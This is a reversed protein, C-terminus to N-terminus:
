QGDQAAPFKLNPSNLSGVVLDEYQNAVRAQLARPQDVLAPLEAISVIVKGYSTPPQDAFVVSRDGVNWVRIDSNTLVQIRCDGPHDTSSDIAVRVDSMDIELLSSVQRQSAEALAREAPINEGREAAILMASSQLRSHAAREIGKQLVSQLADSALSEALKELGGPASATVADACTATRRAQEAQEILSASEKYNRSAESVLKIPAAAARGNSVVILLPWLRVAAVSGLVQATALGRKKQALAEMALFDRNPEVASSKAPIFLTYALSGEVVYPRKEANAQVTDFGPTAGTAAGASTSAAMLLAVALPVARKRLASWARNM